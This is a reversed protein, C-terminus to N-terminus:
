RLDFTRAILALITIHKEDAKGELPCVSLLEWGEFAEGMPIFHRAHIEYGTDIASRSLQLTYIRYEKEESAEEESTQDFDTNEEQKVPQSIANKKLHEELERGSAWKWTVVFIPIFLFFWFWALGSSLMHVTGDYIKVNAAWTILVVLFYSVWLLIIKHPHWHRITM